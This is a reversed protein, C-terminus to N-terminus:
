LHDVGITANMEHEAGADLSVKNPGANATEICVMTTWDDDGFDPLAKAKDIWPNWVVTTDSGSSKVTIRRGPDTLVCTSRTDVYVRDTESTFTIPREDQTKRQGADVKDLYDVGELGTIDVQRVDSVAFYTHLAAEFSAPTDSRNRVCLTMSLDRGFAVSHSILFPEITTALVLLLVGEDMAAQQLQWETIRAPGHSPASPDTAHPGFWPFCVPVGGRIPQGTAFNSSPSMFLLPQHGAPTFDAVHAGHMYVSGSCLDTDVVARTLGGAGPKFRLADPIAYRDNLQEPTPPTDM